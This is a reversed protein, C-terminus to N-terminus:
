AYDEYKIVVHETHESYPQSNHCLLKTPHIVYLLLDFAHKGWKRLQQSSGVDRRGLHVDGSQERASSLVVLTRVVMIM